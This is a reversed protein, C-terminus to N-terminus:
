ALLHAIYGCLLILSNAVARVFSLTWLGMDDDSGLRGRPIQHTVLGVLMVLGYVMAFNPTPISFLPTIFWTWLMMAVFATYLCVAFSAITGTIAISCGGLAENLERDSTAM